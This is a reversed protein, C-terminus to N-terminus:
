MFIVGGDGQELGLAEWHLQVELLSDIPPTFLNLDKVQTTNRVTCRRGCTPVLDITTTPPPQGHPPARCRGTRTRALISSGRGWGLRYFSPPDGAVPHGSLVRLPVWLMHLTAVVSIRFPMHFILITCVQDKFLNCYGLHIMDRSSPPHYKTRPLLHPHM